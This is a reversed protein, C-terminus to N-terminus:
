STYVATFATANDNTYVYYSTASVKEVQAYVLHGSSNRMSITIEDYLLGSLTILQRYNGQSTAVWSAFPVAQTSAVVAAATLKSSNVGNHTHDNLQQINEELAAFLTSGTDRTQPKKFGYTLTQM